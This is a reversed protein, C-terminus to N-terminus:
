EFKESRKKNAYYATYAGPAIDIGIKVFKHRTFHYCSRIHFVCLACCYKFAKARLINSLFCNSHSLSPFSDFFIKEYEFDDDASYRKRKRM